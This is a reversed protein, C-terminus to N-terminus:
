KKNKIFCIFGIGILLFFSSAAEPIAATGYQLHDVEIGGSTNRIKIALIGESYQVGFFHDDGTTGNYYADAINVPGIQGLSVMGIGFAEFITSGAGDTWVIGAATPLPGSFTFIIGTSGSPNYWSDGTAGSGDIIGDDGDVSDRNGGSYPYGASGTIGFNLVGDEFNELATPGNAYFGAPIDNESKYSIPGWFIPEAGIKSFLFLFALILFKQNIM